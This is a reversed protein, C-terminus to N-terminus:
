ENIMTAGISASIGIVALAFGLWVDVEFLVIVGCLALTFGTLMLTLTIFMNM